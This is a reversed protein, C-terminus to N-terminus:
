FFAMWFRFFFVLFDTTKHKAELEQSHQSEGWCRVVRLPMHIDFSFFTSVAPFLMNLFATWISLANQSYLSKCLHFWNLIALFVKGVIYTFDNLCKRARLHFAMEKATEQKNGKGLNFYDFPLDASFSSTCLLPLAAGRSAVGFECWHPISSRTAYVNSLLVNPTLTLHTKVLSAAVTLRWRRRSQALNTVTNLTM